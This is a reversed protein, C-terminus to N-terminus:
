AGGGAVYREPEAEFKGLCPRSCLHHVRGAHTVAYGQSPAVEMGCVPDRVPSGPGIDSVPKEDRGAHGGRGGGAPAGAAHGHVAHAGCGFRMMFYLFAAFALFAVLGEM